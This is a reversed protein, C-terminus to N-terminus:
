AEESAEGAPQSIQLQGIRASAWRSAEQVQEATSAASVSRQGRLAADRVEDGWATRQATTLKLERMLDDAVKWALDLGAQADM